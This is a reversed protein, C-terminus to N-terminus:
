KRLVEPVEFKEFEPFLNKGFILRYFCEAEMKADGLANHPEGEQVIQGKKMLLRTDPLGCLELVQHLGMDSENKERDILFEGNLEFFKAQAISHLDFAKYSLVKKLGYKNRKIEIGSYDFQPHHCILNEMKRGEAWKLFKEILEKQSQKNPDRLEKETKGIIELVEEKIVDEDDIRSDGIFEEMTNLDIAGIQWVGCKVLDAGSAEIDVVIPLLTETM